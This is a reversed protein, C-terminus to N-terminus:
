AGVARDDEVVAVGAPRGLARLAVLDVVHRAVREREGVLEPEVVEM